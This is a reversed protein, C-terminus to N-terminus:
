ANLTAKWGYPASSCDFHTGNEDWSISTLSLTGSVNGATDFSGNISYTAQINTVSNSGSNLPGSYAYSFALNAIPQNTGFSLRWEWQSSDTCTVISETVFNTVSSSDSTVDLCVSKGQDNFGCYHGALAMAPPPPPPPAPKWTVAVTRSTGLTQVIPGKAGHKRKIAIARFADSAADPETWDAACSRSGCEAVSSWAKEGQGREQVLLRDGRPLTAARALLSVPDGGTPAANDVNLTVKVRAPAKAAAALATAALVCTLAVAAAAFTTKGRTM